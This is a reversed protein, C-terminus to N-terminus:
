PARLGRLDKLIRRCEERSKKPEKLTPHNGRFNEGRNRGVGINMSRILVAAIDVKSRGRAMQMDMVVRRSKQLLQVLTELDSRILRMQWRGEGRNEIGGSTGKRSHRLPCLRIREVELMIVLRRGQLHDVQQEAKHRMVLQILGEKFTRLQEELLGLIAIAIPPMM